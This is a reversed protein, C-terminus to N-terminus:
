YTWKWKVKSKWSNISETWSIGLIKFPQQRTVFLHVRALNVDFLFKLANSLFDDRYLIRLKWLKKKSNISYWFNPNHLKFRFGWGFLITEASFAWHFGASIEMLLKSCLVTSRMEWIFVCVQIHYFLCPFHEQSCKINQECCKIFVKLCYAYIICIQFWHIKWSFYM